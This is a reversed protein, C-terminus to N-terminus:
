ECHRFVVRGSLGALQALWVNIGFAPEFGFDLFEFGFSVNNKGDRKLVIPRFIADAIEIVVLFVNNGNNHFRKMIEKAKIVQCLEFREPNNHIALAPRTLANNDVSENGM